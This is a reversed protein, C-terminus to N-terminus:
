TEIELDRKLKVNWYWMGQRDQLFATTTALSATTSALVPSTARAWGMDVGTDSVAGVRGCLLDGRGRLINRWVLHIHVPLLRPKESM